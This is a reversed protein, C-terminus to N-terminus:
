RRLRGPSRPAHPEGYYGDVYPYSEGDRLAPLEAPDDPAFSCTTGARDVQSFRGWLFRGGGLYLGAIANEEAWPSPDFDASSAARARSPRPGSGPVCEPGM